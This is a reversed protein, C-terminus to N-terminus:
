WKFSSNETKDIGATIYFPTHRKATDKMHKTPDVITSSANSEFQYGARLKDTVKKQYETNPKTTKGFCMTATKLMLATHECTEAFPTDSWPAQNHETMYIGCLWMFESYVWAGVSQIWKSWSRPLAGILDFQSMIYALQQILSKLASRTCTAPPKTRIDYHAIELLGKLIILYQDRMCLPLNQDSPRNKSSLIAAKLSKSLAKVMSEKGFSERCAQQWFEASAAGWLFSECVRSSNTGVGKFTGLLGESMVLYPFPPADSGIAFVGNSINTCAELLGQIKQIGQQANIAKFHVLVKDDVTDIFKLFSGDVTIKTALPGPWLTFRDIKQM